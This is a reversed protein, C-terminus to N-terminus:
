FDFCLLWYLAPYLIHYQLAEGQTSPLSTAQLTCQSTVLLVNRPTGPVRSVLLDRHRRRCIISKSNLVLHAGHTVLIEKSVKFIPYWWAHSYFVCLVLIPYAAPCPRLAVLSGSRSIGSQWCLSTASLSKNLEEDVDLINVTQGSLTGTHLTWYHLQGCVVLLM